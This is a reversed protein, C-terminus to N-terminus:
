PKSYCISDRQILSDDYAMAHTQSFKSDPDYAEQPLLRGCWATWLIYGQNTKRLAIVIYTCDIPQRNKAFRSYKERGIRKAYIIEDTDDTEILNTTGVVRGLNREIVIEDRGDTEITPLIEKVLDLLDPTELLHYHLNTNNHDLLIENGNSDIGIIETPIETM